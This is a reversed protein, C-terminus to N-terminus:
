SRMSPIHPKTKNRHQSKDTPCQACGNVDQLRTVLQEIQCWFVTEDQLRKQIGVTDPRWLTYAHLPFDGGEKLSHKGVSLLAFRGDKPGCPGRVKIPHPALRWRPPKAPDELKQTRICLQTRTRARLYPQWQKGKSKTPDDRATWLELPHRRLRLSESNTRPVLYTKRPADPSFLLHNTVCHNIYTEDRLRRPILTGPPRRSLGDAHRIAPWRPTYVLQLPYEALEASPVM